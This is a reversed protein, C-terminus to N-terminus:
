TLLFSYDSNLVYENIKREIFHYLLSYILYIVAPIIKGNYLLIEFTMINSNNFINEYNTYSIYEYDFKRQIIYIGMFVISISTFLINHDFIINKKSKTIFLYFILNYIIFTFFMLFFTIITPTYKYKLINLLKKKLPSVNNEFKFINNCITCKNGLIKIQEYLCHRHVYKLTGKCSCPVLLESDNLEEEYCIRCIKEDSSM